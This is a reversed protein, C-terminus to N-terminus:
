REQLRERPDQGVPAGDAIRTQGALATIGVEGPHRTPRVQAGARAAVAIAVGAGTVRHIAVAQYTTGAPVQIRALPLPLPLTPLGPQPRRTGVLKAHAEVTVAM